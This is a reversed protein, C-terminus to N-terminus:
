SRARMLVPSTVSRGLAAQGALLRAEAPLARRWTEQVTLIVSRVGQGGERGPFPSVSREGRGGGRAPSPLRLWSRSGRSLSPLPPSGTGPSRGPAPPPSPAPQSWHLLGAILARSQAKAAHYSPAAISPFVTPGHSTPGHSTPGATPSRAS